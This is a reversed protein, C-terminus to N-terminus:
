ALLQHCSKGPVSRLTVVAATVAAVEPVVAPIVASAVTVGILLGMIAYDLMEMKYQLFLPSALVASIAKINAEWGLQTSEEYLKQYVSSGGNKTEHSM